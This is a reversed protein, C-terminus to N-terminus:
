FSVDNKDVWGIDNDYSIKYFNNNESLIQVRMNKLIEDKVIHNKDPGIFITARDNLIFGIKTSRIKLAALFLLLFIFSILLLARINKKNLFLFAIIFLIWTAAILLTEFYFPPWFIM